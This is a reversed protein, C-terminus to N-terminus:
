GVPLSRFRQQSRFWPAPDLPERLVLIGTLRIVISACRRRLVRRRRFCVLHVVTPFVLDSIQVQFGGLSKQPAIQYDSFAFTEESNNCATM